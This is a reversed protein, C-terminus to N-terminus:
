SSTAPREKGSDGFMEELREKISKIAEVAPGGVDIPAQGALDAQILNKDYPITGLV